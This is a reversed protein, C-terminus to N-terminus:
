SSTTEDDEYESYACNEEQNWCSGYQANKVTAEIEM